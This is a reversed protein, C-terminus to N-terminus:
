ALAAGLAPVLVWEALAMVVAAEGMDEGMDLATDPVKEDKDPVKGKHKDDKQARHKPVLMTGLLNRKPM